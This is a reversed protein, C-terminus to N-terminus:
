SLSMISFIALLSIFMFVLIIILSQNVGEQKNKQVATAFATPAGPTSREQLFANFGFTRAKKGKDTLQLKEQDISVFEKKILENLCAVYQSSLIATADGEEVLLLLEELVEENECTIELQSM